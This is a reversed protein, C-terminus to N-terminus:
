GFPNEDASPGYIPPVPIDLLRLYVSLQGRHHYLHNMMLSRVMAIRPQAMLTQEGAVMRWEQMLREDDWSELTETAKQISKRHIELLEETSSPLTDPANPPAAEDPNLMAAIGMPTAAIHVALAGLSRSKEHPKWSFRDAPVRELVTETVRGEHQLESILAQTMTM